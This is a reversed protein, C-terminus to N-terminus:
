FVFSKRHLISVTDMRLRIRWIRSFLQRIRMCDIGPRREGGGQRGPSSALSIIAVTHKSQNTTDSEAGEVPTVTTSTLFDEIGQAVHCLNVEKLIHLFNDWTPPLTKKSTSKLWSEICMAAAKLGTYLQTPTYHNTLTFNAREMVMERIRHSKELENLVKYSTCKEFKMLARLSIKESPSYANM